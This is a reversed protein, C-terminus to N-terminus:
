LPSVTGNRVVLVENLGDMPWESFQARLADLDGTWVDLNLVVRDTQGAAVKEQVASYLGRPSKSPSPAYCDFVRGEVLYDPEKGNPLAPPNQQVQYGNRALTNAADNEMTLSRQTEADQQPRVRAPSGTPQGGQTGSPRTPAGGPGAGPDGGPDGGPSTGTSGRDGGERQILALCFNEVATAATHQATRSNYIPEHGRGGESPEQDPGIEITTGVTLSRGSEQPVTSDGLGDPGVLEMFYVVGGYTGPATDPWVTGDPPPTGEPWDAPLVVSDDTLYGNYTVRARYGRTNKATDTDGAIPHKMREWIAGATRLVIGPEDHWDPDLTRTFEIRSQTPLGNAYFQVTDPHTYDQHVDHFTEATNIHRIYRNWPTGLISDAGIIDGPDLLRHDCLRYFHGFERYIEEYADKEPLLRLTEDERSPDPYRLWQASPQGGYLAQYRKNPLLQLAGPMHGVLSTVESANKGLILSIGFEGFGAKMRWYAGAAGSAPQVGHLVGLVASSGAEQLRRCAARAVLGGMSHTVLIVRTCEHGKARYGEITRAIYAALDKGSEANSQTWNYGFGHVPLDFCDGVPETWDYNELARLVAGYSAMSVGGWGREFAGPMDRSASALPRDTEDLEGDPTRGVVELYTDSFATGIIQGKRSLASENGFHSYLWSGRRITEFPRWWGLEVEPEWALGVDRAKPAEDPGSRTRKMRSGMIGPVFVVPIVERRIRVTTPEDAQVPGFQGVFERWGVELINM